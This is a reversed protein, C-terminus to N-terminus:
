CPAGDGDVDTLGEYSDLLGDGDSDRSLYDPAGDGDADSVGGQCDPGEVSDPISSM